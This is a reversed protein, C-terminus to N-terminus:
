LFYGQEFEFSLTARGRLPSAPEELVISAYEDLSRGSSDIILSKSQEDNSHNDEENPYYSIRVADEALVRDLGVRYEQSTGGAEHELTWETGEQMTSTQYLDSTQQNSGYALGGGLLAAGGVIELFGRRGILTPDHDRGSSSNTNNQSM